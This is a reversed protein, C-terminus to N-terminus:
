ARSGAAAESRAIDLSGEPGFYECHIDAAEVGLGILAVYVERM